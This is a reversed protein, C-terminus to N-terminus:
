PKKKDNYYIKRMIKIYKNNIKLDKKKAEITNQKLKLISIRYRNRMLKFYSTKITINIVLQCSVYFVQLNESGFM